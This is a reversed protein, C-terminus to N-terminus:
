KLSCDVRCNKNFKNVQIFVNWRGGLGGDEFYCVNSNDCETKSLNYCNIQSSLTEMQEYLKQQDNGNLKPFCRMQSYFAAFDCIDSNCNKISKNKCKDYNINNSFTDNYTTNLDIMEQDSITNSNNACSTNLLSYKLKYYKVESGTFVFNYKCTDIILRDDFYSYLNVIYGKNNDNFLLEPNNNLYYMKDSHTISILNYPFKNSVIDNMNYSRLSNSFFKGDSKNKQVDSFDINGSNTM